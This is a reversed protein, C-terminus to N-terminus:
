NTAPSGTARPRFIPFVPRVFFVTGPQLKLAEAGTRLFRGSHRFQIINNEANQLVFIYGRYHWTASRNDTIAAACAEGSFDYKGGAALDSTFNQVALVKYRRSNNAAQGLLILTGKLRKFNMQTERNQLSVKPILSSSAPSKEANPAPEVAVSIEIESETTAIADHRQSPPAKWAQLYARDAPSLTPLDLSYLKGDARKVIATGDKVSLVEADYPKGDNGTFSHTEAGHVQATLGLAAMMVGCWLKRWDPLRFTRPCGPTARYPTFM